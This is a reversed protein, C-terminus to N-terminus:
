KLAEQLAIGVTASGTVVADTILPILIGAKATGDILSAICASIELASGRVVTHAMGASDVIVSVEARPKVDAVTEDLSFTNNADSLPHGEKSGSEQELLSATKKIHQQASELAIALRDSMANYQISNIIGLLRIGVLYGRVLQATDEATEVCDAGTISALTDNFIRIAHEKM